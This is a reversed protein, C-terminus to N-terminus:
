MEREEDIMEELTQNCREICYENLKRILMSCEEKSPIYEYEVYTNDNKEIISLKSDKFEIDYDLYLNYESGEKEEIGFKDFIDIYYLPIYANITKSDNIIIEDDFVIESENLPAKAEVERTVDIGLTTIENDSLGIIDKLSNYFDKEDICHESVYDILEDFIEQKRKDSIYQSSNTDTFTLERYGADVVDLVYNGDYYGKEALYEAEESNEAEIEFTDQIVEKIEVNFLKKM